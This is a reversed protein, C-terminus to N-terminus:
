NVTNNIRGYANAKAIGMIYEALLANYLEQDEEPSITGENKLASLQDVRDEETDNAKMSLIAEDTPQSSLFDIIRGLASIQAVM